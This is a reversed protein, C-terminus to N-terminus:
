CGASRVPTLDLVDVCALLVLFVSVQGFRMNSQIPHSGVLVAAAVLTPAAYRRRRTVGRRAILLAAIGVVAAFTLSRWVMRAVPESVSGLPRFVVLAFPPYTFPDGNEAVYKYLPVGDDVALVAGRYVHLDMQRDWEPLHWAAWWSWAVAVAFFVTATILVTAKM